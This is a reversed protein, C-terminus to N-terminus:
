YINGPNSNFRHTFLKALVNLIILKQDCIQSIVLYAVCVIVEIVKIVIEVLPRNECFM